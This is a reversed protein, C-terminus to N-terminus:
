HTTPNYFPNGLLGLTLGARLHRGPLVRREILELRADFVNRVEVFGGLRPGRAAGSDTTRSLRLDGDTSAPVDANVGPSSGRWRHAYGLRWGARHTLEAQAFGSHRPVYWLQEGAAISPAELTRLNVSRVYDYGGTLAYAFSGLRGAYRARPELGYSRVAALNTASWFADGPRRAWLIWDSLRRHFGTLGFRLGGRSVDVGLEQSWGSEPRLDPNGGPRWYRDNFTPLRYDRSVRARLLVGCREPSARRLDAEVGLTPSLPVFRGDVSEVRLSSAARLRRARYAHRAFLAARTETPRAAGYVEDVAARTHSLTAGATVEGFRAPLPVAALAEALYADFESETAVGSRPDRYRLAERLYGARATTVVSRGRHRWVGAFRHARDRQRAESATQVTTPAIGREGDLGWYHLELANRPGADVFLSQHLNGLRLDANSQRLETDPRGAVAFFPYDNDARRYDLSTRARWRAGGYTAAGRVGREGFAGGFASLSAALQADAPAEADLRVTASVAGSGWLTASGGRTLTVDTGPGAAVLSWDLLGLSPSLLPVGNWLALVQSANGGRVSLSSLMGPGYSRVHVGGRDLVEAVSRSGAADLEAASWTEGVGGVPQGGGRSATVVAGPLGAITDAPLGTAHQSRVGTAISAFAATALLARILAAPHRPRPWPSRPDPM